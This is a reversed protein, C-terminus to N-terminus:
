RRYSPLWDLVSGVALDIGGTIIVLTMGCALIGYRSIHRLMDRHTDWRFFSGEANFIAGLLLIILLAFIARTLPLAIITRLTDLGSRSDRNKM